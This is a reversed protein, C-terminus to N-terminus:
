DTLVIPISVAGTFLSARAQLGTSRMKEVVDMIKKAYVQWDAIICLHFFIIVTNDPSRGVTQVHIDGDFRKLIAEWFDFDYIQEAKVNIPLEM